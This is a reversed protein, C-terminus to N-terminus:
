GFDAVLEPFRSKLGELYGKSKELSCGMKKALTSPGMGYTLGYVLQKVENRVTESVQLAYATGWMVSGCMEKFRKLGSLKHLLCTQRNRTASAPFTM